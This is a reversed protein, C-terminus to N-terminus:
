LKIRFYRLVRKTLTNERFIDLYPVLEGGFSRIFQEKSQISSGLFNFETNYKVAKKVFEWIMLSVAGSGRSDVGAGGAFLYYSRNDYLVLLCADKPKNKVTAFAMTGCKHKEIFLSLKKLFSFDYPNPINQRKYIDNSISFFEEPDNNYTIITDNNIAKRILRRADKDLMSWAEEYTKNNKLIYCYKVKAQYKNTLFPMCNFFQPHWSQRYYKVPPLQSELERLLRNEETIYSTTKDKEIKFYPGLFKTHKPMIIKTPREFNNVMYPMCAKINNNQLVLSVDWYDRCVFDLWLPHSFLPVWEPCNDRYFEKNDM